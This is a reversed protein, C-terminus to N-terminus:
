YNEFFGKENDNPVRFFGTRSGFFEKLMTLLARRETLCGGVFVQMARYEVAPGGTNNVRLWSLSV